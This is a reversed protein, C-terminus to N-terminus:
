SHAHPQGCKVQSAQSRGWAVENSCLSTNTTDNSCANVGRKAKEQTHSQEFKVQSRQNHGWAIENRCSSYVNTSLMKNRRQM